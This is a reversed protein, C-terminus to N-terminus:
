SLETIRAFGNASAWIGSIIGSYVPITPMEFFSQAGIQITYATTSATSSFALYLISTSENYLYFASRSTNSAVLQVTTASSAVSTLADTSTLGPNVKYTGSQTSAVTWSGSQAASVSDNASTLAAPNVMLRQNVDFRLGYLQNATLTPDATLYRGLALTGTAPSITAGEAYQIDGSSIGGTINVNLSGNISTLYENTGSITSQASIGDIFNPSRRTSVM